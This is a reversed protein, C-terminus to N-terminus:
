TVANKSWSREWQKKKGNIQPREFRMMSGWLSKKGTEPKTKNKNATAQSTSFVVELRVARHDAGVTIDDCAESNVVRAKKNKQFLWFDIQRKNIGNDHTWQQDFRKRFLTNAITLGQTTAWNVLWRGRANREGYGFVDLTVAVDGEMRNGVVANRYGGIFRIRKMKDAQKCLRDVESYVEEVFIDDYKSHPMYVCIFRCKVGTIDVDVACVRESVAHFTRFGRSLEKNM